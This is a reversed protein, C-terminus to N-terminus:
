FLSGQEYTSSICLPSDNKPSNVITSVPTAEMPPSPLDAFHQHFAEPSSSIPSLWKEEEEKTLILPMRDHIPRIEESANKTLITCSLILDGTPSQWRDWLGAMAFPERNPLTLYYPRKGEARKWEYFGDALILCRRRQFSQKFSNKTLVSEIRANILSHGISPDKAWSPILGWHYARIVRRGEEETVALIKQTPAINYRPKYDEGIQDPVWDIEFREILKLFETYLTYRGCM